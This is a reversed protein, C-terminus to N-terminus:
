GMRLHFPMSIHKKMNINKRGVGYECSSKEIIKKAIQMM